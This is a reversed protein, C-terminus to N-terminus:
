WYVGVDKGYAQREFAKGEEGLQDKGDKYDGWHVLEHLLTSEVLAHMKSNNSDTSEFKDCIKKDIYIRNLHKEGVYKGNGNEIEIFTIDPNFGSTISWLARKEDLESYKLYANWVKPKKKVNPLNEKIWKTLKPYKKEFLYEIRM